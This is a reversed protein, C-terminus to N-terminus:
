DSYFVMIRNNRSGSISLYISITNNANQIKHMCDVSGEVREVPSSFRDNCDIARLNTKGHRSVYMTEVISVAKKGGVIVNSIRTAEGMCGASANAGNSEGIWEDRRHQM